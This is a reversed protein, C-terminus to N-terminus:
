PAAEPPTGVLRLADVDHLLELAQDPTVLGGKLALGVAEIDCQALRTRLLACRLEALLYDHFTAEHRPLAAEHPALTM